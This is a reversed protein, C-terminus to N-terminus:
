LSCFGRPVGPLKLAVTLSTAAFGATENPNKLSKPLALKLLNPNKGWFKRKPRAPPIKLDFTRVHAVDAVSATPGNQPNAVPRPMQLKAMELAKASDVKQSLDSLDSTPSRSNVLHLPAEWIRVLPLNIKLHKWHNCSFRGQCLPM